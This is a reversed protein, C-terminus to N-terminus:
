DRYGVKGLRGAVPQGLNGAVATTDDSWRKFRDRCAQAILVKRM